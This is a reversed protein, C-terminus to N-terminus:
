KKAPGVVAAPLNDLRDKRRVPDDHIIGGKFWKTEFGGSKFWNVDNEDDHCKTCLKEEIQSMRRAQLQKRTADPTNPDIERDNPRYPNILKHINVDRTNKVHPGCPGHCSECGVSEFKKNHDAIAKAPLPNGDGDVKPPDAFGTPHQLGTVHCVVCEPDYQRNSPFRAKTALTDYAHSHGTKKWVDYEMAHCKKCRESGVYAVEPTGSLRRLEAANPHPIRLQKELLGTQKVFRQYGEFLDLVPNGKANEATPRYEPGIHVLHYKFDFGGAPKRFVGLVGVCRGRHGIALIRTPTGPIEDSLKSPPEEEETLTMMIALPPFQKNKGRLENCYKAAKRIQDEREGEINVNGGESAPYDHYMGLAIEVGGAAFAKLAVPLKEKNTEFKGSNAPDLAGMLHPGVMSVVGIKPSSDALIEYPRLQFGKVLPSNPDWAEKLNLAIPRPYMKENQALVEALDMTFEPKGLGVARYGLLDLAKMSYQYKLLAQENTSKRKPHILEGLDVGVIPWGKKKLEQLFNWRRILGGYQPDSCGCPDVYGHMQGTFVITLDPKGWSDLQKVPTPIGDESLTRAESPQCPGWVYVFTTLGSFFILGFCVPLFWSRLKANGALPREASFSEM